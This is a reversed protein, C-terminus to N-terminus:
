LTFTCTSTMLYWWVSRLIDQYTFTVALLIMNPGGGRMVRLLYNILSGLLIKFTIRASIESPMDKRKANKPRAKSRIGLSTILGKRSILLNDKSDSSTIRMKELSEFKLSIDLIVYKDSDKIERHKRVNLRGYNEHEYSHFWWTHVKGGMFDESHLM